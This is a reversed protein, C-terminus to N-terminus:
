RRDTECQHIAKDAPTEEATSPSNKLPLPLARGRRL